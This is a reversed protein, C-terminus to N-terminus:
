HGFFLYQLGAETLKVNLWFKISKLEYKLLGTPPVKVSRRNVTKIVSVHCM